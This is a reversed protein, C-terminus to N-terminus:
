EILGFKRAIPRRSDKKLRGVWSESNLAFFEWGLRVRADIRPTWCWSFQLGDEGISGM